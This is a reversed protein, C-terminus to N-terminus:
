GGKKMLARIESSIQKAATAHNHFGGCSVDHDYFKRGFWAKVPYKFTFEEDKSVPTKRIVLTSSM